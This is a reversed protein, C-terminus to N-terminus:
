DSDDDSGFLPQTNDNDSDSDDDEDGNEAEETTKALLKLMFDRNNEIADSYMEMLQKHYKFEKLIDLAHYSAVFEVDFDLRSIQYIQNFRQICKQKDTVDIDNLKLLAPLRRKYLKWLMNIDDNFLVTLMILCENTLQYILKWLDHDQKENNIAQAIIIQDCKDMSACFKNLAQDMKQEMNENIDCWKCKCQFGWRSFLQQKRDKTSLRKDIIDFYSVTIEEGIKIDNLTILKMKTKNNIGDNEFEDFFWRANPHCDHNLRAFMLFIGGFSPEDYIIANCSFIDLQKDEYKGHSMLSNFSQKEDDTLKQIETQLTPGDLKSLLISIEPSEQYIISGMKINKTAIWGNGKDKVEKIEFVIEEDIKREVSM